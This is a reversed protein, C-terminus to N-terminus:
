QCDILWVDDPKMLGQVGRERLDYMLYYVVGGIYMYESRSGVVLTGDHKRWDMNRACVFIICSM